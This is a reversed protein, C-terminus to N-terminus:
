ASSHITGKRDFKWAEGQRQSDLIDSPLRVSGSSGSNSSIQGHTNSDGSGTASHLKTTEWRALKMAALDLADAKKSITKRQERRIDVEVPPASTISRDEGQYRSRAGMGGGVSQAGARYEKRWREVKSLVSSAYSHASRSDDDDANSLPSKTSTRRSHDLEDDTGGNTQEDEWRPRNNRDNVSRLSSKLCNGSRMTEDLSDPHRGLPHEFGSDDNGYNRRSTDSANISDDRGRVIRSSLSGHEKNGRLRDANPVTEDILRSFSLGKIALKSFLTNDEEITEPLVKGGLSAPHTNHPHPSPHFGSKDNSQQQQRRNKVAVEVSEVAPGVTSTVAAGVDKGISGLRSFIESSQVSNGDNSCPVGPSPPQFSAARLQGLDVMSSGLTSAWGSAASLVSRGSSHEGDSQNRERESSTNRSAHGADQRRPFLSRERDDEQADHYYDHDEDTEDLHSDRHVGIGLSLMEGDAEMKKRERERQEIWRQERDRWRDASDDIGYDGLGGGDGYGARLMAEAGGLSCSEELDLAANIQDYIGGGDDDTSASGLSLDSASTVSSYQRTSYRGGGGGGVGRISNIESAIGYDAIASRKRRSSIPATEGYSRGLRNYQMSSRSSSSNGAVGSSMSSGGVVVGGGGIHSLSLSDSLADKQLRHERLATELRASRLADSRSRVSRAATRRM